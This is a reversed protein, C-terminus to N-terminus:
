QNCPKIPTPSNPNGHKVWEGQDCVWSDEPGSLFRLGFLVILIFILIYITIKTANKM